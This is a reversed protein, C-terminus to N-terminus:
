NRLYFLARHVQTPIQVKDFSGKACKKHKQEQCGLFAVFIQFFNYLNKALFRCFDGCIHAYKYMHTCIHAYTHMHTCIHAYTHMHTCIHAYTHMYKCIHAYTHMHTCIHAYTHM